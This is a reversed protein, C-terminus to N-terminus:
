RADMEKALREMDRYELIGKSVGDAVSRVAAKALTEATVPKDVFPIGLVNGITFLFVAPLAAPKESPDYVLSPRLVSARLKNEENLGALKSEVARKALLYEELWTAPAKFDWRAEAASIFVFPMPKSASSSASESARVAAEAANFATVRTVLDYTANKSPV